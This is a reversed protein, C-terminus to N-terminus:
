LALRLVAERQYWEGTLRFGLNEYFGQPSHDGPVVSTLFEGASYRARAHEILLGMACRGVGVGQFRVDVILRWLFYRQEDPEIHVVALGAVTEDAYIAQLWHDNSYCAEAIAQAASVVYASQETSVSLECAARM